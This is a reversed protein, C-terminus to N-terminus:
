QLRSRGSQAALREKWDEQQGAAASVVGINFRETGEAEGRIQRELGAGKLNNQRQHDM